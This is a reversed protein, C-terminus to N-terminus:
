KWQKRRLGSSDSCLCDNAQNFVGTPLHQVVLLYEDAELAMTSELCKVTLTVRRCKIAPLPEWTQGLILDKRKCGFLFRFCIKNGFINLKRSFITIKSCNSLVNDVLPCLSTYRILLLQQPKILTAVPLEVNGKGEGTIDRDDTGRVLFHSENIVSMILFM